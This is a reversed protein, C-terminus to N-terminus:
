RARNPSRPYWEFEMMVGVDGDEWEVLTETAEDRDAVRELMLGVKAPNAKEEVGLVRYCTGAQSRLCDHIKPMEGRWDFTTQTTTGLPRRHAM